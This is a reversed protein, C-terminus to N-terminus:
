FIEPKIQVGDEIVGNTLAYRTLGATNHIELKDMLRQRHKEVTKISINLIGAIQKNAAGEAILQIIEEERSTLSKSVKETVKESKGHMTKKEFFRKSITPDFFPKDLALERIATALLSASSQKLLYGRAGVKVVRDVYDDSSYGSLILVNTTPSSDRIQRTAEVGNLLPMAIDMVVVDPRLEKVMEVAIRGTEAEGIVEIGKERRLLSRFGERVILHDDALLVTITKMSNHIIANFLNRV